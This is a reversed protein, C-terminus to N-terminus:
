CFVDLFDQITHFPWILSYYTGLVLRSVWNNFNSASNAPVKLSWNEVEYPFGFFRPYNFCNQVIFSSRSTDGDRIELQVVSFYYYIWM